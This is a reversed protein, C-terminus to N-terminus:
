VSELKRALRYADVAAALWCIFFVWTVINILQADPSNSANQIQASIALMDLPVDGAIIKDSISMAKQSVKVLLFSVASLAVTVLAIGLRYKRLYVHGAGPIVLTSLLVAVTTRKM